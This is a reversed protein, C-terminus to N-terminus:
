ASKRKHNLRAMREAWLAPKMACISGGKRGLLLCATTFAGARTDYDGLRVPMQERPQAFLRWKGTPQKVIFYDM